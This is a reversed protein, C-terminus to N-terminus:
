LVFLTDPPKAVQGLQFPAEGVIATGDRLLARVRVCWRIKVLLGEYSLPNPPLRISFRGLAGPDVDNAATRTEFEHVGIDEDGKGQTHWLVCLELREVEVPEAASLRYSGAIIEGPFYFPRPDDIQVTVTTNSM